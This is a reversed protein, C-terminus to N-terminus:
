GWLGACGIQASLAPLFAAWFDAATAFRSPQALLPGFGGAANLAWALLAATLAILVPASYKELLRIGEMGRVLVGLQLTWFGLFCAAQAQTIGLWPLLATGGLAGGTLTLLM